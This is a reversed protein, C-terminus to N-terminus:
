LDMGIIYVTCSGPDIYAANDGVVLSIRAYRGESSGFGVVGEEDVGDRLVSIELMLRAGRAISKKVVRRTLM